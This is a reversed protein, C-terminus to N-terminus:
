ELMHINQRDATHTHESMKVSYIAGPVSVIYKVAITLLTPHYKLKQTSVTVLLLSFSCRLGNTGM